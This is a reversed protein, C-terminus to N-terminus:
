FPSFRSFVLGFVFFFGFSRNPNLGGFSSTSSVASTACQQLRHFLNYSDGKHSALVNAHRFANGYQSVNSRRPAADPNEKGALLDTRKVPNL